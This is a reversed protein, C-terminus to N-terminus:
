FSLIVPKPAHISIKGRLLFVNGRNTPVSSPVTSSFANTTVAIMELQAVAASM